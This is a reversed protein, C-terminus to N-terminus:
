SQLLRVRAKALTHAGTGSTHASSPRDPLINLLHQTLGKGSDTMQKSEVAHLFCYTNTFYCHLEDAILGAALSNCWSYIDCCHLHQVNMLM